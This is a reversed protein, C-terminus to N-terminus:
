DIMRREIGSLRAPRLSYREVIQISVCLRDSALTHEFIIQSIMLDQLDEEAALSNVCMLGKTQTFSDIAVLIPHSNLHRPAGLTAANSCGSMATFALTNPSRLTMKSARAVAQNLAIFVVDKRLKHLLHYLNLLPHHIQYIVWKIFNSCSQHQKLLFMM